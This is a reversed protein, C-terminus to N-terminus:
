PIVARLRQKVECFFADKWLPHKLVWLAILWAVVTLLGAVFLTAIMNLEIIQLDLMIRLLLAPALTLLSVVATHTLGRVMLRVNFPIAAQKFSYAVLINVMYVVLLGYAFSELTGFFYGCALFVLIRFTQIVFEARMMLQVKGVAVLMSLTFYWLIAVAGAACFIPVLPAAADWQPGFMIRLAELPFLAFFGYFPWAFTAATMTSNRHLDEMNEGNRFARAFAPYTVNSVAGMLDRHFLNMIGQARSLMGVAAFGLVRGAVLDSTKMAVETVIHAASAQSGFGIVRRWESLTPRHLFGGKAYWAALASTTLTAAISSWVMSWFGYGSVAMGLAVVFNVVTSVINIRFLVDFHMERRFLALATSSFPILLFTCAMVQLVSQLRKDQYFDAVPSAVWFAVGFLGFAMLLMLTFATRIRADTLEVEQILYSPVGFDRLVHALGILAVAVSYLGIDEPTLLRALVFFLILQLGISLYREALSLFLSRRVTAM